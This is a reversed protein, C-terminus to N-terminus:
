RIPQNPTVGGSGTKFLDDLYRRGVIWISRAGARDDFALWQGDRSWAPLTTHGPRVLRTSGTAVELLCLGLQSDDFGGFAVWRGDPSWAPLLGRERPMPWTAVARGTARERIELQGRCGFAVRTQDPSVAFYWAPANTFFVVPQPNPELPRVALLHGQQRAHVFLTRGDASWSPFGGVTVRRAEGGGAPIVWAEETLYQNYAAERIFAIWRGDPSWAADKAKAVLLTKQRTRLDLVELRDGEGAGYVLRKGDPSWSSKWGADVLLSPAAAPNVGRLPDTGCGTLLLAAATFGICSAPNPRVRPLRRRLTSILTNM